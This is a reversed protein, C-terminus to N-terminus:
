LRDKKDRLGQTTLGKGKFVGKMKKLSVEPMMHIVGAKEMVVLRQKPKLNLKNRVEKPIVVQFKPSLFIYTM